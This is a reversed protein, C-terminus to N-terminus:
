YHGLLGERRAKRSALVFCYYGAALYAASVATLVALESAPFEWLRVGESMAVRTLFSGHALPLLKLWEYSWVPAAILPVFGFQVLQFLNELRKYVLALGAFCFGIGIVSALTLAALPVVTVVDVSLWRGTVPMMVLLLATAWLFSLCVNVVAKVAMVTGFGYPSMFLRELTGWQAERTVNWALGAYGTIALTFLFFGVIIGDLSETIAPGAVARGGFFVVLFFILMTLFRSLTNLPYRVLLVFQKKAIVRLLPLISADAISATGSATGTAALASSDGADTTRTSESGRGAAGDSGDPDTTM